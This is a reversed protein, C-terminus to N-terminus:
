CGLEGFRKRSHALAGEAKLVEAPDPNRTSAEEVPIRGDLRACEDRDEAMLSARRRRTAFQESSEGERPKMTQALVRNEEARRADMEKQNPKAKVPTGAQETNVTGKSVTRQPCPQESYTTAGSASRCKYVVQASAPTGAGISGLVGLSLLLNRKLSM